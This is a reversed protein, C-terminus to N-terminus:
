YEPVSARWVYKYRSHIDAGPSGLQCLFDQGPKYGTNNIVIESTAGFKKLCKNAFCMMRYKAEAEEIMRPDYRTGGSRGGATMGMSAFMWPLKGKAALCVLTAEQPIWIHTQLLDELETNTLTERLIGMMESYGGETRQKVERELQDDTIAAIAANVKAQRAKVRKEFENSAKNDKYLAGALAPGGFLAILTDIIM